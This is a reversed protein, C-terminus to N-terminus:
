HAPFAFISPGAENRIPVIQATGDIFEEEFHQSCLVSYKAKRLSNEVENEAPTRLSIKSIYYYVDNTPRIYMPYPNEM